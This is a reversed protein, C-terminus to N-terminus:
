MIVDKIIDYIDDCKSENMFHKGRKIKYFRLPAHIYYKLRNVIKKSNLTFIDQSGFIVEVRCDYNLASYQHPFYRFYRKTDKRFKNIITKTYNHNGGAFRLIGTIVNDPLLMWPTLLNLKDRYELSRNYFNRIKSKERRVTPAVLIIGNTKKGIQTAFELALM